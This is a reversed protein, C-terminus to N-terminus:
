TSIRMVNKEIYICFFFQMCDFLLRVLIEAACIRTLLLLRKVRHERRSKHEVEVLCREWNLNLVAGHITSYTM